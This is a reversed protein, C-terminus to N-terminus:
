EAVFVALFGHQRGRERYMVSRVHRTIEIMGDSDNEL